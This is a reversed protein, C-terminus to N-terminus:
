QASPDPISRLRKRQKKQGYRPEGPLPHWRSRWLRPTTAYEDVTLEHAAAAKELREDAMAELGRRPVLGYVLDCELAEAVETMRRLTVAGAVESQELKVMAPQSIGLRAALDYTSLGLANRFANVWGFMPRGLDRFTTARSQSVEEAFFDDWRRM